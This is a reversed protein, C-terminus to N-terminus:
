QSTSSSGEPSYSGQAHSAGGGPPPGGMGPGGMGPGGPGVPHTQVKFSSDLHVTVNTGDTKTVDVEYGGGRFTTTVAGAKGGSVTALAAATAKEADAGTVAKEADEHAATGPADASTFGPPPGYGGNPPTTSPTTTTATGAAGAVAAGGVALAAFAMLGLLTRKIQRTM